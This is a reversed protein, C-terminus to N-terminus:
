RLKYNTGKIFVTNHETELHVEGESDEEINLKLFLGCNRHDIIFKQYLNFQKENWLPKVVPIFRNKLNFVIHRIANIDFLPRDFLKCGDLYDMIESYNSMKEHILLINNEVKSCSVFGDDERGFCGLSLYTPSQM